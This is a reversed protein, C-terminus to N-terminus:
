VYEKRRYAVIAIRYSLYGIVCSMLLCVFITLGPRATFFQLGHSLAPIFYPMYALALVALFIFLFWMRGKTYGMKFLLPIEVCVVVTFILFSISFSLLIDSLFLTKGQVLNVGSHLVASAVFSLIFSIGVNLYRGLVISNVNISLSGYLRELHNTEQISFITASILATLWALNIGVLTLTSDKYMFVFAVPITYMSLLSKATLYDLKAMKLSDTM